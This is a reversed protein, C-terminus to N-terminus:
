SQAKQQKDNRCFVADRHAAATAAGAAASRRLLRRGRAGLCGLRWLRRGLGRGLGLRARDVRLVLDLAHWAVRGEVEVVEVLTKAPSASSWM